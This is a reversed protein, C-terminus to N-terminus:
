RVGTVARYGPYLGNKRVASKIASEDIQLAEGEFIRYLVEMVRRAMGGSHPNEGEALLDPLIITTVEM